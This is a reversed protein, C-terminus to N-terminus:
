PAVESPGTAAASQSHRVTIQGAEIAIQVGYPAYATGLQSVAQELSATQIDQLPGYLTFDSSHLYSLTHKSAKSWRTLLTKLTKDMPSASYVYAQHLPLAVPADAFQNVPKWRGRFDPAPRTACAALVFVLGLLVFKRVRRSTPNIM